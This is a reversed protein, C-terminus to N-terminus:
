LFYKKLINIVSQYYSSGFLNLHVLLYYLQYLDIQESYYAPKPISDFYTDYFAPAFGGFLKSMAIDVMGHGFYIAPDILWAKGQPDFLFNGGWLDGHIFQPKDTQLYMQCSELMKEFYPIENNSLLNQKLALDIQPQLRNTVYFEPWDTNLVNRQTLSGIFNDKNWGFHEDSISHLQALDKAFQIWNGKNPTGSQVYEMVLIAANQFENLHFIEPAAIAKSNRIFDLADKESQFMATADKGTQVKVVLKQFSTEMVYVSSIDGGSLPNVATIRKGLLQSIYDQLSKNM